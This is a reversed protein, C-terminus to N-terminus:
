GKNLKGKVHMNSNSADCFCPKAGLTKQKHMFSKLIYFKASSMNTVPIPAGCYTMELM